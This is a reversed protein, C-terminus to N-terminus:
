ADDVNLLKWDQLRSKIGLTKCVMRELDCLNEYIEECGEITRVRSITGLLFGHMYAIENEDLTM